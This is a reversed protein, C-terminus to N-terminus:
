FPLDDDLNGDFSDGEYFKDPGAGAPDKTKRNDQGGSPKSDSRGGGQAQDGARNLIQIEGGYNRLVIETSYRKKGEQDQWERTELKGEIFLMSGKKIYREIVGVLGQNFVSVTHWETKERKEGTAKDKWSESTAIRMRAVRQDGSLSKIEPDAGVNGLLSVKNISPM